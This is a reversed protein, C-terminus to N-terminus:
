ESKHTIKLSKLEGKFFEDGKKLGGFEKSHGGFVAPAFYLSRKSFPFSKTKGNVSFILKKLNYSVKIMSWKDLSVSLGTKFFHTKVNSDTFAADLKGDRLILSLSGISIGHHRFLVQSKKSETKIEFTLTFSGRPFIEYPITLYTGKGDFKLVTANNEDKGWSPKSSPADPPLPSRRNFPEGYRVGGGLEAHAESDNACPLLDGLDNDFRYSYTPVREKPISITVCKGETESWINLPIKGGKLKDLLFPTSRWIKGDLTIARAFYVGDAFNHELASEKKVNVTHPRKHTINFLVKTQNLVPPIDPEAALHIFRVYVQKAPCVGYSGFNMLNQVPISFRAGLLEGELIAKNADSRPIRLLIGRTLTNTRQNLTISNKSVKLGHMDSNPWNMNKASFTSANKIEIKGQLTTTKGAALKILIACDRKEDCSRTPDAGYIERSGELLEFSALKEKSVLSGSITIHNKTKKKLILSFKAPHFMDRLPQKAYKYNRTQTSKLLIPRFGNIVTSGEKEDFIRLVPIIAQIHPFQETPISYTIDKLESSSLSAKPFIKLLRNEGDMLSLQFQQKEDIDSDPVNLIEVRLSEGLKLECRASLILNPLNINDGKRPTQIQKKLKRMYYRLIRENSRSSLVTPELCTNENFENWEPIVIFDPSASRATEFTMRLTRTGEEDNNVGSLPNIYGNVASLGVLKEGNFSNAAKVFAPVIYLRNFEDDSKRVYTTSPKTCHGIGAFMAGDAVNMYRKIKEVLKEFLTESFVRGNKEFVRGTLIVARSVDAAYLWPKVNEKLEKLPEIMDDPNNPSRYNAILKEGRIAFTNPSDMTITVLEKWLYFQKYDSKPLSGFEPFLKFHTNESEKLWKLAKKFMAIHGTYTASAGLGDIEYSDIEPVTYKLFDKKMIHEFKGDSYRGSVDMILPRDLWRNNLYNQFHGYQLQARSYVYTRPVRMKRKIIKKYEGRSDTSYKLEASDISDLGCLLAALAIAIIAHKRM